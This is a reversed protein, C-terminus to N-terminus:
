PDIRVDAALEVFKPRISMEALQTYEHRCAAHHMTRVNVAIKM